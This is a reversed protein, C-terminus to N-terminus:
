LYTGNFDCEQISLFFHCNGMIEIFDKCYCLTQSCINSDESSLKTDGFKAVNQEEQGHEIVM